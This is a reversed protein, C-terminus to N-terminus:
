TYEFPPYLVPKLIKNELWGELYTLLEEVDLLMLMM